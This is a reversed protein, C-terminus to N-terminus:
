NHPCHFWKTQLLREGPTICPDDGHVIFDIAHDKVLKNVWEETLDYPADRIVKV